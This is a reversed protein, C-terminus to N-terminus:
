KADWWYKASWVNKLFQIIRRKRVEQTMSFLINPYKLSIHYNKYWKQLWKQTIKLKEAEKGAEAKLVCYDEFLQKAISLIIHQPLWGKLSYRMDIFYDFLSYRVKLVKKQALVWSVISSNAVIERLTLNIKRLIKYVAVLLSQQVKLIREIVRKM